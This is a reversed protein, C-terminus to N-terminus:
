RRQAAASPRLADAQSYNAASMGVGFGTNRSANVFEAATDLLAQASKQYALGFAFGAADLGSPAGAGLSSSLTAVAAAFEDGVGTVVRGAGALAEPDVVVPTM